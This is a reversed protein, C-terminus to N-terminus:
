SEIYVLMNPPLKMETSGRRVKIYTGGFDTGIKVCTQVGGPRSAFKAGDKLSSLRVVTENKEM